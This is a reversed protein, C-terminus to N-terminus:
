LGLSGKWVRRGGCGACVSHKLLVAHGMSGTERELGELWVARSPEDCLNDRRGEKVRGFAFMVETERLRLFETYRSPRKKSSTKSDSSSM